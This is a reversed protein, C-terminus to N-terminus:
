LSRHAIPRTWEYLCRPSHVDCQDVCSHAEILRNLESMLTVHKGVNEGKRRLEPFKDMFRRMDEVSGIKEHSKRSSQYENLIGQVAEAFDAFNSYMHTRYFSDFRPDVVLKQMDPHVDPAGELDLQNNWMGILEHLMAQYTWQTLLPTVPDERRDVVLVLPTIGPRRFTFLERQASIVSDLVRAVATAQKSAQQYRIIPKIKHSLLLSCMGDITRQFVAEAPSMHGLPGDAPQVMELSGGLNLSAVDSNIAFFDAYFEQVQEVKHHVDAEALKEVYTSPVINPFFVHYEGFKPKKLEESLLRLNENTARVFVIAKMHTM